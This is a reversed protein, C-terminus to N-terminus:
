GPYWSNIESTIADCLVAGDRADVRASVWIGLTAASLVAARQDVDSRGPRGVQAEAGELAYAFAARLRDRYAVGRRTVDRDQSGLEAMSNVMLCGRRGGRAQLAEKVGAFFSHIEELGAAPGRMRGILPHIFSEMYEDVALGFLSRKSGFALYLSSRSLGTARQLESLATGEYGHAWFASKAAVIVRDGDFARPRPV